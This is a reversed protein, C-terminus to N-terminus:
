AFVLIDLFILIFFPITDVLVKMMYACDSTPSGHIMTAKIYCLIVGLKGELILFRPSLYPIVHFQSFFVPFHLRIGPNCPFHLSFYGNYDEVVSFLPRLFSKVLIERSILPFILNSPSKALSFFITKMKRM